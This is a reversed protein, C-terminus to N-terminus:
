REFKSKPVVSQMRNKSVPMARSLICHKMAVSVMWKPVEPQRPIMASSKVNAPTRRAETAM